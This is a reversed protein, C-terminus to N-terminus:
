EGGHGVELRFHKMYKHGLIVPLYEGYVINQWLAGVLRRSQQFSININMSKSDKLLRLAKLVLFFDFM